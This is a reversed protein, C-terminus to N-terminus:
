ALLLLLTRHILDCLDLDILDAERWGLLETVATGCYLIECSVSLILIIVDALETTLLDAWRKRKTFEFTLPSKQSSQGEQQPITASM